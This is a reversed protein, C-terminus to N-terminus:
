AKSAKLIEGKWEGIWKESTHAFQRCFKNKAEQVEPSMWWSLPDQYIENVKAAASEPSEHFIGSRRLDDFYPQALSRLENQEPDWFLLTPYNAAFTELYTTSNYTSICLRSRNLDFFM